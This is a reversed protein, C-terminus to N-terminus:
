STKASYQKRSSLPQNSPMAPKNVSFPVQSVAKPLAVPRSAIAAWASSIRARRPSSRGRPMWRTALTTIVKSPSAAASPRESQVTTCFLGSPRLDARAAGIVVLHDLLAAAPQEAIALDVAEDGGLPGIGRKIKGTTMGPRPAAALGSDM